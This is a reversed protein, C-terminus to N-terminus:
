KRRPQRMLGRKTRDFFAKVKARRKKCAECEHEVIFDIVRQAADKIPRVTNM